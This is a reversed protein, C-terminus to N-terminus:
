YRYIADCNDSSHFTFTLSFTNLDLDIQSFKAVFIHLDPAATALLALAFTSQSLLFFLLLLPNFLEWIGTLQAVTPVLLSILPTHNSFSSLTFAATTGDHWALMAVFVYASTQSESSTSISINKFVQFRFLLISFVKVVVRFLTLQVM